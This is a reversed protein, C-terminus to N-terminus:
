QNSIWREVLNIGTKLELLESNKLITIQSLYTRSADIAYLEKLVDIGLSM